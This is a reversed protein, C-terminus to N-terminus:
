STISPKGADKDDPLKNYTLLASGVVGWILNKRKGHDKFSECACSAQTTSAPVRFYYRTM